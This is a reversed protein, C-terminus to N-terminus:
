TRGCIWGGFNLLINDNCTEAAKQGEMQFTEQAEMDDVDDALHEGLGEDQLVYLPEHLTVRRREAVDETVEAVDWHAPLRALLHVFHVPLHEVTAAM